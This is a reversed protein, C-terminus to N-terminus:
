VRRSAVERRWGDGSETSAPLVDELLDCLLALGELGSHQVLEPIHTRIVQEYKRPDFRTLPRESFFRLAHQVADQESDQSGSEPLIDDPELAVDPEPSEDVLRVALLARALSIAAKTEGGKALHVVLGGLAEPLMLYLHEQGSVWEAARSAWRAAVEPPLWAAARALDVHVRENDTEPVRSMVTAVREPAELAMRALYESQPWSPFSVGGAERVAGLPSSFFDKEDLPEIWAPSALKSFFYVYSAPRRAILGLAREVTEASPVGDAEEALLVDIEAFDDFTRPALMDLLVRELVGIKKRLEPEQVDIQHHCVDVFYDRHEDWTSWAIDMLPDPLDWGSGDLRARTEKWMARRKARRRDSSFAFKETLERMSHACQAFRDPNGADNLAVLGGLYMSALSYGKSERRRDWDELAVLLVRQHGSLREDLM